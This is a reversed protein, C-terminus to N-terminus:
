VIQTRMIRATRDCARLIYYVTGIYTNFVRRLRVVYVPRLDKIINYQQEKPQVDGYNRM